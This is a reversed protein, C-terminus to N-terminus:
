PTTKNITADASGIGFTMTVEDGSQLQQSANIITGSKNQV